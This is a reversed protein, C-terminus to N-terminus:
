LSTVGTVHGRTVRSVHGRTVGALLPVLVEQTDVAVHRPRVVCEAVAAAQLLSALGPPPRQPQHGARRLQGRHHPLQLQALQPPEVEGVVLQGLERGVGEGAQRLEPQEVEAM